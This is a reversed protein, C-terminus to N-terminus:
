ELKKNNHQHENVQPSITTTAESLHKLFPLVKSKIILEHDANKNDFSLLLIRDDDDDEESIRRGRAHNFFYMSATTMNEYVTSSYQVKGLKHELTTRSNMRILAQITWLESEQRTLWPLAGGQEERYNTALVRGSGLRAITASTISKDLQLIGQVIEQYSLNDSV